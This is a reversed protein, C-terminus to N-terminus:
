SMSEYKGGSFGLTNCVAVADFLEVGFSYISKFSGEFCIEVLGELQTPGGTLRFEGDNVCPDGADLTFLTLHM